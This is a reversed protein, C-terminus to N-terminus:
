VASTLEVENSLEPAGTTLAIEPKFLSHTLLSTSILVLLLLGIGAVTNLIKYM